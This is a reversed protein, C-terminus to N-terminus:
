WEALKWIGPQLSGEEGVEAFVAVAQKLQEMAEESRGAAHLLDALNNHLAAERHRDGMSTCLQLAAETHEIARETEGGAGYARALNNLAAARVGPDGLTEALRLSEELHRRATDLDEESGALIGLMNHAQALAEADGESEALELARRAFDEAAGARGQHHAALSRDAHLRALEGSPGTEELTDMAAEYHSEALEWDGRRQHVLGLKHEVTALAAEDALAAATEYSSIAAGYDGLITHVDGIAEHLGFTDPHGLALATQFHSLAEANAYLSRAHEGALKYYNAAEDERGALRYHRAIQGSKSGADPIRKRALAEAVRRHLLRRRALSTEEYVLERLKEHSFDYALAGGGEGVEQIVGREMLKELAEITEEESRGSAERLTDFDFSRGMVAAANLLQWGTESVAQLREQLLDRGGGPLSWDYSEAPEGPPMAALYEGVLLPLGETERYLRESLSDPLGPNMSRVLEEVHSRGLRDLTLHTTRGARQAEALFGRLRHGAPVEESRWTGLICLPKGNLRRVLYTLLDLTASDACHLDDLFLVGPVSGDCLAVLVRAVSEFFRSQAGPGELPPPSPLDSLVHFLGPLLRAAESLHHQPLKKLKSAAGPQTITASLSEVFPGYALNAERTYCRAALVPTGRDTLRALFERALRTKGIGAEGELIVLRGDTGADEYAQLLAACEASRGVLPIGASGADPPARRPASGEERHSAVPRLTEPPLKNEKIEQYMRTTEELPSVGLQQELLRVCERYQRVAASRQGAQAYLEMLSRHAPEHLHDLALWRRAYEIAPEYEGATDHLHVLRQLVGAFERRLSEAEFYQWDDFEVSDRLGFGALFDGRYLAAAETLSSLCASCVESEPHGHTRCEAVLERFRGVDVWLADYKLGVSARDAGLWGGARLEGLASLTRRLAARARSQGFEPWLLAALTDRSHRRRTVVLYAVLAVAKRTDVEVPAGDREIRPSGLLM